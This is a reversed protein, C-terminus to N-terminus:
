VVGGFDPDRLSGLTYWRSTWREGARGVLAVGRPALRCRMGELSTGSVSGPSSVSAGGLESGTALLSPSNSDGELSVGWHALPRGGDDGSGGDLGIDDGKSCGRVVASELSWSSSGSLVTCSGGGDAKSRLESGPLSSSGEESGNANRDAGSEIADSKSLRVNVMSSISENKELGPGNSGAVSKESWDWAVVVASGEDDNPASGEVPVSKGVRSVRAGSKLRSSNQADTLGMRPSLM